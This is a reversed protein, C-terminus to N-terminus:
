QSRQIVNRACATAFASVKISYQNLDLLKKKVSPINVVQISQTAADVSEHGRPVAQKTDVGSPDASQAATDLGTKPVTDISKKGGHTAVSHCM